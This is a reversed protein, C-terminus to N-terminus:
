DILEVDYGLGEAGAAFRKDFTCLTAETLSAIALHIADGPRIGAQDADCIETALAFHRLDLSIITAIPLWAERYEELANLREVSTIRGMRLKRSLAGSLEVDVWPSSVIEDDNLAALWSLARGSTEEPILTSVYVSTDIYKM